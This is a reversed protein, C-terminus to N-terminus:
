MPPAIDLPTVLLIPSARITNDLRTFAIEEGGAGSAEVYLGVDNDAIVNGTLTVRPHGPRYGVIGAAASANFAILTDDIVANMQGNGNTANQELWIGNYGHAVVSRQIAVDASQDIRSLDLADLDSDVFSSDRVELSLNAPFSAVMGTGRFSVSRIFGRITTESISLRAEQGSSAGSVLIGDGSNATGNLTCRDIALAGASTLKIASATSPSTANLALGRLLVRDTPAVTVAIGVGSTVSIGAHVGDPVVISLSKNDISFPGYSGSDLAVVEGAADTSAVAVQFSRCPASRSCLNADNGWSAVFTRPAAIATSAVACAFAAALRIM